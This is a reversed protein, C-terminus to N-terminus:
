EIAETARAYLTPPVTLGLAQAHVGLNAYLVDHLKQAKSELPSGDLLAQLHDAAMTCYAKCITMEIKTPVYRIAFHTSVMGLPMSDSAILPTSQVSRFGAEKAIERFPAFSEDLEVDELVIPEGTQWARGCACGDTTRVERFALLFPAQLGHEAVILLKDGAILQVNGFQAGHLAVVDALITSISAEFPVAAQLRQNMQQLM